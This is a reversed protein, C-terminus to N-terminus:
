FTKVESTHTNYLKLKTYMSNRMPVKSFTSNLCNSNMAFIKGNFHFNACM